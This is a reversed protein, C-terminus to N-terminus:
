ADRPIKHKQRLMEFAEEAPIGEGRELSALGKRIGIVAEARDVLTLLEEYSQADQVVFEAKGNVTLIVPRGSKKLQEIFPAPDRQFDLLPGRPQSTELM